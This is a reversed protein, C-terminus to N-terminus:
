TICYLIRNLFPAASRSRAQVNSVRKKANLVVCYISNVTETIFRMPVSQSRHWSRVHPMCDRYSRGGNTVQSIRPGVRTRPRLPVYPAGGNSRGAGDHGHTVALGGGARGSGGRPWRVSGVADIERQRSRLGFSARVHGGSLPRVAAWAAASRAVYAESAATPPAARAPRRRSRAAAMTATAPRSAAEM